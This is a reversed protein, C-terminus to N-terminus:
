TDPCTTTNGAGAADNLVNRWFHTGTGDFLCCCLKDTKGGTGGTADWTCLRITGAACTPLTQKAMQYGGSNLGFFETSGNFFRHSDSRYIINQSSGAISPNNGVSAGSFAIGSTVVTTNGCTFSTGAVVTTAGVATGRIVGGDVSGVQEHVVQLSGNVAGSGADFAGTQSFKLQASNHVMLYGADVGNPNIYSSGSSSGGGIPRSQGMTVAAVLGLALGTLLAIGTRKM